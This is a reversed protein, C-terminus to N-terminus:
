LADAEKLRDNLQELCKEELEKSEQYKWRWYDNKTNKIIKIASKKM